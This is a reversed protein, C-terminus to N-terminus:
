ELLLRTPDELVEKIAVLSQVSDRGDIIRHDYSLAIYCMPRIVVEGHEAVPRDKVAHVGLIASQPPNIIPTSLMSGFVGGNTVTFTGGSLEEASLRGEQAKKAFDAIILEIESFSLQDANRVVPVVLGRSSSIAVGIDYYQHYIIDAGDVSANIIPFKKLAYVAAKVFFSMVGLKIGHDKVFQDQHRKRMDLVAAMNVENFTTLSATTQQSEVLRQAIRQRLRSMPERKQEREGKHGVDFVTVSPMKEVPPPMQPSVAASTPVTADQSVAVSQKNESKEEPVVASVDVKAIVQGSHVAEGTQALIEILKGATSVPVELVIKDTEIEVLVEGVAVFEGLKKHWQMLTGESVSESLEPVLVAIVKSM